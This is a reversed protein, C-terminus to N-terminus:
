HVFLILILLPLVAGLTVLPWTTPRQGASRMLLWLGTVCFVVCALAFLDLFWRWATGTDRGKHLDNFYAIWGRTTREYLLEGTEFDLSLWADGGPRPLALYLDFDSWEAQAGARVPLELEEALWRRLARPLPAMSGAEARPMADLLDTPLLAERSVVEPTAPISDAHNLTIGTVAFLLM